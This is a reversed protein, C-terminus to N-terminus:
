DTTFLVQRAGRGVEGLLQNLTAVLEQSMWNNGGICIKLPRHQGQADVPLRRVSGCQLLAALMGPLTTTVPEGLSCGRIRIKKLMPADMRTIAGVHAPLLGNCTVVQLTHLGPMSLQALSAM